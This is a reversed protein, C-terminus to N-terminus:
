VVVRVADGDLDFLTTQQGTRFQSSLADKGVSPGKARTLPLAEGASALINKAANVDANETHGCEVCCFKDQTKRNEKAVHGCASCAQSTYAPNVKVFEGQRYQTKYELQYLFSSLGSDLLSRNLGSKAKVNKGPKDKTGKASKTMNKVKLDEVVIASYEDTIARSVNHLYNNRRRAIKKHLKNIQKKTKQWNKGGKKQRNLKRQKRRLEAQMEKLFLPNEYQNGNSLTALQAVGVDIGIAKKEKHAEKPLVECVIVCYWKSGEKVVQVQKATGHAERHYVLKVLGIKPLKIRGDDIAVKGSRIRYTFSNYRHKGAFKPFGSARFFSQYAKDLRFIVDSLVESHIEALWSFEETKKIQTLEKNQDYASVSVGGSRYATIRHELANNYLFRCAGLWQLFTQEQTKNPKLRYKYAKHM